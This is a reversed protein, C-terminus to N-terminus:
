PALPVRIRLMDIVSVTIPVGSKVSDADGADTLVLTPLETIDLIVTDPMFANLPATLKVALPMGAPTVAANAGAETAPEPVVVSVSVAEEDVAPPIYGIVTCPALALRRCEVVTVRVMAVGSKVNDTEGGATTTAEPPPEAVEVMVTPASLPNVPETFKVDLPKGAPTPTEKKGGETLPAPLETSVMVVEVPAGAPLKLTFRCPALPLRNCLVDSTTVDWGAIRKGAM